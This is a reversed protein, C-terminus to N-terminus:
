SKRGIVTLLRDGNVAGFACQSNGIRVIKITQNVNASNFGRFPGLHRLLEDGTVTAADPKCIHGLRQAASTGVAGRPLLRERHKVQHLSKEVTSAVTLSTLRNGRILSGGGHRRM